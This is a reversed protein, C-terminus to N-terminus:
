LDNVKLSIRTFKNSDDLIIHNKIIATKSPGFTYAEFIDSCTANLSDDFVDPEAKVEVDSVSNGSEDTVKGKIVWPKYDIPRVMIFAFSGYELNEADIKDPKSFTDDKDTVVLFLEDNINYANHDLKENSFAAKM